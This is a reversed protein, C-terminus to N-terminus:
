SNEYSIRNNTWNFGIQLIYEATTTLFQAGDDDNRIQILLITGQLVLRSCWFSARFYHVHFETISIFTHLILFSPSTLTARVLYDTIWLLSLFISVLVSYIQVFKRKESNDLGKLISYTWKRSNEWTKPYLINLSFLPQLRLVNHMRVVLRQNM